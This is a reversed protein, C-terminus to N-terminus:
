IDKFLLTPYQMNKIFKNKEWFALSDPTFQLTVRSISLKKCYGQLQMLVYAGVGQRRDHPAVIFNGIFCPARLLNVKPPLYLTAIAIVANGRQTTVWISRLAPHPKYAITKNLQDDSLGLNAGAFLSQIIDKAPPEVAFNIKLNDM